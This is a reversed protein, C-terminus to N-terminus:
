AFTSKIKKILSPVKNLQHKIKGGVNNSNKAESLDFNLQHNKFYRVIRDVLAEEYRPLFIKSELHRESDLKDILSIIKNESIADTDSKAVNIIFLIVIM